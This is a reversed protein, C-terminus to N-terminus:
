SKKRKSKWNVQEEEILQMLQAMGAEKSVKIKEDKVLQKIQSAYQPYVKEFSKVNRRVEHLRRGKILYYADRSKYINPRRVMGLNEVYDEKRLYKNELHLLINEGAYLIEYFKKGAPGEHARKNLDHVEYMLTDSEAYMVVADLEDTRLQGVNETDDKFRFYIEHNELDLLVQVVESFANIKNLRIRGDMWDDNKFQSGDIKMGESSMVFIPSNPDLNGLATLSQDSLGTGQAFITSSFFFCFIIFSLLKKM